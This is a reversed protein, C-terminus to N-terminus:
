RIELREGAVLRCGGVEVGAKLATGILRKDPVPAPPPPATM